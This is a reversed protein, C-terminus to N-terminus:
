CSSAAEWSEEEYDEGKWDGQIEKSIGVVLYFEVVFVWFDM